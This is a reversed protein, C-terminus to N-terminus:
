YVEGTKTDFVRSIFGALNDYENKVITASREVNFRKTYYIRGSKEDKIQVVYRKNRIYRLGYKEQEAM